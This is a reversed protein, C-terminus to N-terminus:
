QRERREVESRAAHHPVDARSRARHRDLRRLERGLATHVRDLDVGLADLDTALVHARVAGVVHTDNCPACRLRQRLELHRVRDEDAAALAAHRLDDLNRELAQPGTTPDDRIRDRELVRALRILAQTAMGEDGLDRQELDRPGFRERV